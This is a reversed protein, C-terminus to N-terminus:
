LKPRTFWFFTLPILTLGVFELIQPWFIIYINQNKLNNIEWGNAWNNVLVHPLFHGDSFALWGPSFSQPLVLYQNPSSTLNIQYWFLHNNSTLYQRNLSNTQVITTPIPIPYLTVSRIDNQTITYDLSANRFIFNLGSDFNASQRAPVTFWATSWDNTNNLYSNFYKNQSNNSVVSIELPLGSQHRYGIRVLYSESLKADPFNIAFLNENHKNTLRHYNGTEDSILIQSPYNLASINVNKDVTYDIPISTTADDTILIINDQDYAVSFTLESQLRNAFLNIPLTVKSDSSILYDGFQSFAPDTTTFGFPKVKPPNSILFPATSNQYEFISIKGIDKIKKLNPIQSLLNLTSVSIKSYIHDDPYFINKDFIIYQVNYQDLINKLKLSSKEQLATTLQWYYQENNLNWADFARDLIPNELGYWLFGSGSYNWTYNTWGWFSGQPLNTVRGSPNLTKFFRFTEFYDSPINIRMKPSIYNGQFAPFAFITILFVYGTVLIPSFIKLSYKLKSFLQIMAQLGFASLLSFTFITPVIFKTWPSRFIQNVVPISRFIQNIFNFPPIASLLAICSLGFFLILFLHLKNKILYILGVIVFFSLLYGAILVYQNQFYSVWPAMMKGVTDPFDYYYGRLLLFDFPYSRAQNRAYTDHNSMINGIGQTPHNLNTSLFYFQPLLWFSNLILILFIIKLAEAVSNKRHERGDCNLESSQAGFFQNGRLIIKSLLILGICILYVIFLTQVYFAPIALFNILILKKLSKPNKLYDLLSFILWPFFGWFTSFTELPNWFNQVSGFNLLYFLSACFAIWSNFKLTRKLGFYIGFTGLFIMAFHWLYRILNNPLILIFPLLILQRILDTAHAMGGVLGLGQYEQWVAFLSRKLNMWINLEPMLNDWGALYTGPTFNRFCLFTLILFLFTEPLHRKIWLIVSM